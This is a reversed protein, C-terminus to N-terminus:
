ARRKMEKQLFNLPINGLNTEVIKMADVKLILIILLRIRGFYINLSYEKKIPMKIKLNSANVRIIIFYPVASMGWRTENIKNKAKKCFIIQFNFISKFYFDMRPM